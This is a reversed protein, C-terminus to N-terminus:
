GMRERPCGTMNREDIEPSEEDAEQKEAAASLAGASSVDPKCSPLKCFSLRVADASCAGAGCIEDFGNRYYGREANQFVPNPFHSTVADGDCSQDTWASISM